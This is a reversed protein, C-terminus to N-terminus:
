SNLLLTARNRQYRTGLREVQDAEEAELVLLLVKPAMNGQLASKETNLTCTMRGHIATFKVVGQQPTQSIISPGSM